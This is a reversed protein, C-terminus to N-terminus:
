RRGGERGAAAELEGLRTTFRELLLRHQEELRTLEDALNLAALVALRAVDLQPMRRALERMRRDVRAAVHRVYAEEAGDARVPYREGFITVEIRRPGGGEM